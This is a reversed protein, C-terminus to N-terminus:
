RAAIPRVGHAPTRGVHLLEAELAPALIAGSTEQILELLEVLLGALAALLDEPQASTVAGLEFGRATVRADALLPFDRAANDIACRAVALLALESLSRRARWWVAGLAEDALLPAEVGARRKLWSEVFAGHDTRM